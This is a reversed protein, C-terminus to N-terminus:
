DESPDVKEGIKDDSSDYNDGSNDSGSNPHTNPLTYVDSQSVSVGVPYRESPIKGSMQEPTNLRSVGLMRM